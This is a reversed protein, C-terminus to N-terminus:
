KLNYIDEETIYGIHGKDNVYFLKDWYGKEKIQEEIFYNIARAKNKILFENIKNTLVEEEETYNM